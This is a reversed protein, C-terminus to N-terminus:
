QSVQHGKQNAQSVHGMLVTVLKRLYHAEPQQPALDIAQTLDAMASRYNELRAYALGRNVYARADRPSRQLAQTFATVATAYDHAHLARLGRDYWDGALRRLERVTAPAKDLCFCLVSTHVAFDDSPHPERPLAVLTQLRAKAQEPTLRWPTDARDTEWVASRNGVSGESQPSHSLGVAPAQSVAAETATPHSEHAEGEVMPQALLCLSMATYGVMFVLMRHQSRWAVLRDRLLRMVSLCSM